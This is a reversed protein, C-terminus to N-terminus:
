EIVEDARALFLTPVTIGLARATRLNVALEFQRPQEVPLDRIEAGRLVRSVYFATRRTLAMIDPGYSLLCGARAFEASWSLSPIKHEIALDALRQRQGYLTADSLVILADLHGPRIGRFVRDLDQATSAGVPEVEVGLAAAAAETEKLEPGNVPNQPNWLVAVRRVTPLLERMMEIRKGAMDPGIVTQGTVRGQPRALNTVLGTEVMDGCGSCIIPTNTSVREATTTALVGHTVLVDLKLGALEAALATLRESRGEAWRFEFVISQGEAFGLRQLEDQFARVRTQMEAPSAPSLFGVRRTTTQAEATYSAGITILGVAITLLARYM